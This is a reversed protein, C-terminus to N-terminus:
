FWMELFKKNVSSLFMCSLKWGTSGVGQHNKTVQGEASRSATKELWAVLLANLFWIAQNRFSCKWTMKELLFKRWSGGDMGGFTQVDSDPWSFAMEEKVSQIWPLIFHLVEAHHVLIYAEWHSYVVKAKLRWWWNNLRMVNQQASETDAGLEGLSEKADEVQSAQCENLIKGETEKSSM